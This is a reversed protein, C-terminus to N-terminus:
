AALERAQIPDVKSKLSERLVDRKQRAQMLGVEPFSGLGMERSKGEIMYRLIWSRGGSERVNLYLGRGDAHYGVGKITRATRDTLRDTLKPM